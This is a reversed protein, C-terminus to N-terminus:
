VYICMDVHNFTDMEVYIFWQFCWRLFTVGIDPIRAETSYELASWEVRVKLKCVFMAISCGQKGVSYANFSRGNEMAISSSLFATSLGLKKWLQHKEGNFIGLVLPNLWIVPKHMEMVVHKVGDLFLFQYNTLGFAYEGTQSMFM